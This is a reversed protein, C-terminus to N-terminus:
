EEEKFLDPMKVWVGWETYFQSQMSRKFIIYEAGAALHKKVHDTPKDNMGSHLGTQLDQEFLEYGADELESAPFWSPLCQVPQHVSDVRCEEIWTPLDDPTLYECDQTLMVQSEWQYCDPSTRYAKDDVQCWEDSWEMEYGEESLLDQMDKPVDNWNAFLIGKEPDTYGPEGYTSAYDLYHHEQLFELANKVQDQKSQEM